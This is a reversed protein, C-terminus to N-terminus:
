GGTELRSLRLAAPSGKDRAIAHEVFEGEIEVTKDSTVPLMRRLRDYLEPAMPDAQLV